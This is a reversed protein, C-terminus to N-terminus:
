GSAGRPDSSEKENDELGPNLIVKVHNILINGSGLMNETLENGAWAPTMLHIHGSIERLEQLQLILFNLGESDCLFIVEANNMNEERTIQVTLLM